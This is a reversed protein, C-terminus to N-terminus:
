PQTVVAKASNLSVEIVVKRNASLEGSREGAGYIDMIIDGSLQDRLYDRVAAARRVSLSANDNESGIEDAYGTIKITLSEGMINIVQSLQNLQAIHSEQLQHKGSEHFLVIPDPPIKVPPDEARIFKSKFQVGMKDPYAQCYWMRFDHVGAELFISDAVLSMPRQGGTFSYADDNDLVVWDDVWVKAGDDSRLGFLYIGSVDITMQSTFIIGFSQTLDIGPMPEDSPRWPQDIETWEISTYPSLDKIYPAYGRTLSDIPLQYVMGKFVEFRPDRPDQSWALALCMFFILILSLCRLIM